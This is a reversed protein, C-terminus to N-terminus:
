NPDHNSCEQHFTDGHDTKSLCLTMDFHTTSPSSAIPPTNIAVPFASARHRREHQPAAEAHAAGAHAADSQPTEAHPVEAQPDVPQPGVPQPADAHPADPQEAQADSAAGM